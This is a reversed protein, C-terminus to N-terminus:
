CLCQVSNASKSRTVPGIVTIWRDHDNNVVQYIWCWVVLQEKGPVAIPLDSEFVAILDSQHTLIRCLEDSEAVSTHKSYENHTTARM